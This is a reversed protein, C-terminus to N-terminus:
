KEVMCWLVQLWLIYSSPNYKNSEKTWCFLKGRKLKHDWFLYKNINLADYMHAGLPNDKKPVKVLPFFQRHVIKWQHTPDSIFDPEPINLELREFDKMNMRKLRPCVFIPHNVVLKKYSHRIKAKMYSDCYSVVCVVIVGMKYMKRTSILSASVEM